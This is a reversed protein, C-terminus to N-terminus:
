RHGVGREVINKWMIELVPRNEPFIISFMFRTNQNERYNKDPANRMKLVTRSIKM